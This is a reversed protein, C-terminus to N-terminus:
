DSLRVKMTVLAVPPRPDTYYPLGALSEDAGYAAVGHVSPWEFNGLTKEAYVDSIEEIAFTPASLSPEFYMWDYHWSRTLGALGFALLYPKDATIEDACVDGYRPIYFVDARILPRLTCVIGSDSVLFEIRCGIQAHIVQLFPLVNEYYTLGFGGGAFTFGLELDLEEASQAILGTPYINGGTSWYSQNPIVTTHYRISGPLGSSTMDQATWLTTGNLQDLCGTTLAEPRMKRTRSSPPWNSGLSMNDAFPNEAAAADLTFVTSGVTIIVKQINVPVTPIPPLANLSAPLCSGYIPDSGWTLQGTVTELQVGDVSCTQLIPDSGYGGAGCYQGCFGNCPDTPSGLVAAFPDRVYCSGVNQTGSGVPIATNVQPFVLGDSRTSSRRAYRTVTLRLTSPTDAFLEVLYGWVTTTDSRSMCVGFNPVSYTRTSVYQPSCASEAQDPMNVAVLVDALEPFALGRLTAQMSAAITAATRCVGDLNHRLDFNFAVEKYKCALTNPVFREDLWQYTQYRDSAGSITKEVMGKPIQQTFELTGAPNTTNASPFDLAFSFDRLFADITTICPPPASPNPVSRTVPGVCGIQWAKYFDASMPQNVDLTHTTPTGDRTLTITLDNIQRTCTCCFCLTAM